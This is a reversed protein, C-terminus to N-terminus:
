SDLNKGDAINVQMESLKEGGKIGFDLTRIPFPIMIDNDDYAKKINMIAQSGVKKYTIQEPDSIWMRITFNISSDGFEEFFMTTEDGKSKSLEKINKVANLTVEKVKELDDGYSVGVSLDFRRKGLHSYNEIPNQFVDKNPIIVTQGEFTRIVTDRLNVEIVKGMYDKVEVVDGVKVPKRFSIFIGSMFNAAIDQFAFALALGLIGAGALATSVAKDLNLITLATFIVIGIFIFYIISAFLNNLTINHSVKRIFRLSWKKIWKAVFFGIVVIIVALVLNPLIGILTEAWNSLKETILESIDTVNFEM